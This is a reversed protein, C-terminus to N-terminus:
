TATRSKSLPAAQRVAPSSTTDLDPGICDHRQGATLVNRLPNGHADVKSHIKTSFGGHSIGLSQAKQGASTSPAGAACIHARVTTSDFALWQRVADDAFYDLM